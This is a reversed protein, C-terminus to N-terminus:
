GKSLQWIWGLGAAARLVVTVLIYFSYHIFGTGFDFDLSALSALSGAVLFFPALM